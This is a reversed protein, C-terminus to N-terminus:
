YIQTESRGLYNETIETTAQHKPIHKSPRNIRVNDNPFLFCRPGIYKKVWNRDLNVFFFFLMKKKMIHRLKIQFSRNEGDYKYACYDKLCCFNSSAWPKHM